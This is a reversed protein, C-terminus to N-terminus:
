VDSSLHRRRLPTEHLALALLVVALAANGPMQLSFEVLAQLAIAVLGATAGVRIWHTMTDDQGAAFRRWIARVLLVLAVLAPLAVLIGGEVVIQLYDNHAEQFHQDKQTTQYGGMATGFTNVGTGALPFDRIVAASDTWINKRLDVADSRDTIRAALDTGALAFVIAFAAALSGFAMVGAKKSQFRRGAAISMVVVVVILGALGSRSKAMLLSAVMLLTAILTLQLRGGQPSSLWLVVSRWDDRRSRIGQEALGLGLGLALPLGMLMWGAFHNKNVYPGFPTSLLHVPQWFGYIKMGGWAHEGLMAKQVIGILALVVGFIVISATLRRSGSRSLATTLGALLLTFAALFALGVMTRRPALSLSHWSRSANGFVYGLDYQELFADTKPSVAELVGAPLPILQVAGAGLVVILALFAARTAGPLRRARHVGLAVAGTLACGALLPTYAWPYVSGFALAGWAVLLVVAATLM